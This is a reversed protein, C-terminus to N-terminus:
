VTSGVRSKSILQVMYTASGQSEIIWFERTMSPDTDESAAVYAPFEEKLRPITSVFFPLVSLKDIDSVQPQM